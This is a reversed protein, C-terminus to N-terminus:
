GRLIDRARRPPLLWVPVQRPRPAGQRQYPQSGYSPFNWLIPSPTPGPPAPTADDFRPHAEARSLTPSPTAGIARTSGYHRLPFARFIAIINRLDPNVNAHYPGM